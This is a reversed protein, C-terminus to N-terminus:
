LVPVTRSTFKHFDLTATAIKEKCDYSLWIMPLKSANTHRQLVTIRLNM